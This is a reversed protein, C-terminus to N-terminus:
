QSSAVSYKDKRVGAADAQLTHPTAFNRRCDRMGVTSRRAAKSGGFFQHLVIAPCSKAYGSARRAGVGYICFQKRARKPRYRLRRGRASTYPANESPSKLHESLDYSNAHADPNRPFDEIRDMRALRRKEFDFLLWQSRATFLEAGDRSKAEFERYTAIKVRDSAWTKIWVREGWEPLKKIDVYIKSLAWGLGIERLSRFDVGLIEAHETAAEQLMQLLSPLKLKGDAGADAVRVKYSTSHEKM